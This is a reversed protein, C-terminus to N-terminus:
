IERIKTPSNRNLGRRRRKRRASFTFQGWKERERGKTGGLGEGGGKEGKFARSSGGGDTYNM